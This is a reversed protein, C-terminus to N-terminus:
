NIGLERFRELTGVTFYKIGDIYVIARWDDPYEESDFSELILSGFQLLEPFKQNSVQIRDGGISLFGDDYLKGCRKALRTMSKFFKENM